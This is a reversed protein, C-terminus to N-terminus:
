TCLYHKWYNSKFQENPTKFLSPNHHPSSWLGTLSECWNNCLIYWLKNSIKQLIDSDRLWFEFNGPETHVVFTHGFLWRQAFVTKQFINTNIQLLFSIHTKFFNWFSFYRNKYSHCNWYILFESRCHVLSPWPIRELLHANVLTFLQSM